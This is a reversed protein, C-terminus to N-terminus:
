RTRRRGQRERAADGQDIDFVLIGMGGYEVYNRIGPTAVYLFHREDLAATPNSLPAAAALVVITSVIRHIKM